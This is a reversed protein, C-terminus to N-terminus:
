SQRAGRVERIHLRISTWKEAEASLGKDKAARANQAAEAEAADGHAAYLAHAYQHVTTSNTQM